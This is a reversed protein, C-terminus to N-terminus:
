YVLRSIFRYNRVARGLQTPRRANNVTGSDAVLRAMEVALDTQLHSLLQQRAASKYSEIVLLHFTELSNPLLLSKRKRDLSKDASPIKYQDPQLLCRLCPPCFGPRWFCRWRHCAAIAIVTRSSHAPKTDVIAM